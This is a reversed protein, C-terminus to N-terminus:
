YCTRRHYAITQPNVKIYPNEGDCIEIVKRYRNEWDSEATHKGLGMKWANRIWCECGAIVIEGIAANDTLFVAKGLVYNLGASFSM